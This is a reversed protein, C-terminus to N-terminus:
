PVAVLQQCTGLDDQCTGNVCFRDGCGIDATCAVEFCGHNRDFVPTAPTIRAIDCIQRPACAFGADCLIAVCAGLDCRFGDGCEGDDACAARCESGITDPSCPDIIAHCRDAGCATDDICDEHPAIGCVAPDNVGACELDGACDDTNRCDSNVGRLGDGCSALVAIVLIPKM